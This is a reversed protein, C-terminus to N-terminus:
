RADRMRVVDEPEGAIPFDRTWAFMPQWSPGPNRYHRRYVKIAEAGV